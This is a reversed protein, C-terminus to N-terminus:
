RPYYYPLCYGVKSLRLTPLLRGQITTLYATVLGSYPRPGASWCATTRIVFPVFIFVSCARSITGKIHKGIWTRYM